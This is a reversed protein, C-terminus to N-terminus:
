LGRHGKPVFRVSGAGSWNSGRVPQAMLGQMARLEALREVLRQEADRLAERADLDAEHRQARRRARDAVQQAARWSREAKRLAADVEAVYGPDLEPEVHPRDRYLGPNPKHRYKHASM